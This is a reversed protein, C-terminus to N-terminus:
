LRLGLDGLVKPTKGSQCGGVMISGMDPFKVGNLSLDQGPNCQLPGPLGWEYFQGLWMHGPSRQVWGWLLNSVYMVMCLYVSHAMETPSPCRTDLVQLDGWGTIDYADEVMNACCCFRSWVCNETYNETTFHSMITNVWIRLNTEPQIHRTKDSEM